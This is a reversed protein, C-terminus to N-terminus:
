PRGVLTELMERVVTLQGYMREQGHELSGVRDKLPPADPGVNNVAHNVMDIKREIEALKGDIVREATGDVREDVAAHVIERIPEAVLHRYLWRGGPIKALATLGVAGGIMGGAVIAIAQWVVVGETAIM